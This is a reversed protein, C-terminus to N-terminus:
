KTVSNVVECHSVQRDEYVNPQCLIRLGQGKPSLREVLWIQSGAPGFCGNQGIEHPFKM